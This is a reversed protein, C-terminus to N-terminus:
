HFCSRMIHIKSLTVAFFSEPKPNASTALRADTPGCEDIENTEVTVFLPTALLPGFVDDLREGVSPPSNCYYQHQM